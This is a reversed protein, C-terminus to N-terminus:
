VKGSKLQNLKEELKAIEALRAVEKKMAKDSAAKKILIEELSDQDFLWVTPINLRIGKWEEVHDYVVSSELVDGLDPEGNDWTSWVERAHTVFESHILTVKLMDESQYFGTVQILFRSEPINVSNIGNCYKRWLTCFTRIRKELTDALGFARVVDQKSYIM